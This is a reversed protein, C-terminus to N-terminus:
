EENSADEFIDGYLKNISYDLIRISQRKIRRIRKKMQDTPLIEVDIDDVASMAFYASQIYELLLEVDTFIEIEEEEPEKQEESM